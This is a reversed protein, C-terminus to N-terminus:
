RALAEPAQVLDALQALRHEVHQEALEREVDPLNRWRSRTSDGAAAAPRRRARWPASGRRAAARSFRWRRHIPKRVKLKNQINLITKDRGEMRAIGLAIFFAAAEVLSASLARERDSRAAARTSASIRATSARRASRMSLGTPAIGWTPACRSSAPPLRRRGSSATSARARRRRAAPGPRRRRSRRRASECRSATGRRRRRRRARAARGGRPACPTRCRCRRAPPRSRGPARARSRPASRARQRDHLRQRRGHGLHGLALDRLQFAGAVGVGGDVVVEADDVALGRRQDGPARAHAAGDARGVVGRELAVAAREPARELDGVVHEVAVDVLRGGALRHAVVQGLALERQRHQQGALGVRRQALVHARVEALVAHGGLDGGLDQLAGALRAADLARPLLRALQRRLRDVIARRAARIARDCRAARGPATRRRDSTRICTAVRRRRRRRRPRRARGAHGRVM